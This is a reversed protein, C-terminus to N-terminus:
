EIVYYVAFQSFSGAVAPPSSLCKQKRKLLKTRLLASPGTGLAIYM